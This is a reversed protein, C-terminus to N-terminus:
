IRCTWNWTKKPNRSTISWYPSCHQWSSHIAWGGFCTAHWVWHHHADSPESSCQLVEDEIQPLRCWSLFLSDREQGQGLEPHSWTYYLNRSSCECGSRDQTGSCSCERRFCDFMPWGDLHARAGYTSPSTWRFHSSFSQTWCCRWCKGSSWPGCTTTGCNGFSKLVHIWLGPWCFSRWAPQRYTYSGSWASGASPLTHQHSPCATSTAHSGAHQSTWNWLTDSATHAIRCSCGRSTTTESSGTGVFCRAYKRWSLTTATSSLFSWTLGSLHACSLSRSQPSLASGSQHFAGGDFCSNIAEWRNTREPPLSRVRQSHMYIYVIYHIYIYITYITCFKMDVIKPMLGWITQLLNSSNTHSCWNKGWGMWKATFLVFFGAEPLAM